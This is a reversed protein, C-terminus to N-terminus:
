GLLVWDFVFLFLFCEGVLDRKTCEICGFRDDEDLLEPNTFQHICALLSCIEEYEFSPRPYPILEPDKIENQKSKREEEDEERYKSLQPESKSRNKKSRRSQKRSVEDFSKQFISTFRPFFFFPQLLEPVKRSIYRDPIPLSIDLM